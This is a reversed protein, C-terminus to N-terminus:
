RGAVGLVAPTIGSPAAKCRAWRAARALDCPEFEVSQTDQIVFVAASIRLPPCVTGIGSVPAMLM